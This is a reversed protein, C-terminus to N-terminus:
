RRRSRPSSANPLLRLLRSLFFCQLLFQQVPAWLAYALYTKLFLVLTAPLRLTHLSAPWCSRGDCGALLAAGVVWMSRLFNTKRLGMAKSGHFLHCTIFVVATAAVWWLLRQWPRPTWIVVLILGYAVAMEVLDRRKSTPFATSKGPHGPDGAGHAM